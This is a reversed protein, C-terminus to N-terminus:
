RVCYYGGFKKDNKYNSFGDTVTYLGNILEDFNEHYDQLILQNDKFFSDNNIEISQWKQWDIKQDDVDLLM